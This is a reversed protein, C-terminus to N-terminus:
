ELTINLLLTLYADLWNNLIAQMKKIKNPDKIELIDLNLAACLREAVSINHLQEIDKQYLGQTTKNSKVSLLITKTWKQLQNEIEKKSYDSLGLIYWEFAFVSDYLPYSWGYFLNSFIYYYEGKKKIDYILLHKHCFELNKITILRDLKKAVKKLKEDQEITLLDKLKHNLRITRWKNIRQWYSDYVKPKPFFPQYM